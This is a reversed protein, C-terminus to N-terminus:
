YPLGSHIIFSGITLTMCLEPIGEGEVLVKGETSGQSQKMRWKQQAATM